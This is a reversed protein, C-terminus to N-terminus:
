RNGSEGYRNMLMQRSMWVQCREYLVLNKGSLSGPNFAWTLGLVYMTDVWQKFRRLGHASRSVHEVDFGLRRFLDDGSFYLSTEAGLVRVGQYRPESALYSAIMQLSLAFRRYAHLAWALDPGQPGIIPVRENWIHLLAVPEGTAIHTGDSLNLEHASKDLSLRLVCQEDQTFEEVGQIRRLIADIVTIAARVPWGLLWAWGHSATRKQVAQEWRASSLATSRVSM